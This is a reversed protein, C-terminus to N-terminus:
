FARSIRKWTTYPRRRLEFPDGLFSMALVRARADDTLGVVFRRPNIIAFRRESARPMESVRQEVFCHPTVRPSTDPQCPNFRKLM